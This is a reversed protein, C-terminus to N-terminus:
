VVSKRDVDHLLLSFKIDIENSYKKISPNEIQRSIFDIKDSNLINKISELKDDIGNCNVKYLSFYKYNKEFEYEQLQEIVNESGVEIINLIEKYVDAKDDDCYGYQKLFKKLRGKTIYQTNFITNAMIENLNM